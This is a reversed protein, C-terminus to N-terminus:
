AEAVLQQATWIRDQQVLTNTAPDPAEPDRSHPRGQVTKGRAVHAAYKRELDPNCRIATLAPMYLLRRVKDRGGQIFSRVKWTGSERTVPALGALSATRPGTLTGLEPLHVILGAATVASIGPISTLIESRRNLTEEARLLKQIEADIRKLQHEIQKSASSTSGGPLPTACTSAATPSPPGTGSWRMVSSSSSPWIASPQPSRHTPRLEDVAAAMNALM